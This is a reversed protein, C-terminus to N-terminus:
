WSSNTPTSPPPASPTPPRRNTPPQPRWQRHKATKALSSPPPSFSLAPSDFRFLYAIAHANISVAHSMSIYVFSPLVASATACM